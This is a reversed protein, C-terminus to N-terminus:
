EIWDNSVIFHRNDSMKPANVRRTVAMIGMTIFYWTHTPNWLGMLLSSSCIGQKFKLLIFLRYCTMFFSCTIYINGQSLSLRLSLSLKVKVTKSWIKESLWIDSINWNVGSKWIYPATQSSIFLFDSFFSIWWKSHESIVRGIFFTLIFDNALPRPRPRPRSRKFEKRIILFIIYKIDLNIFLWFLMPIGLTM